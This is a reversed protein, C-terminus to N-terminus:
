RLNIQFFFYYKLMFFGNIIGPETSLKLTAVLKGYGFTQKTTVQAGQGPPPPAASMNAALAITSLAIGFSLLSTKM